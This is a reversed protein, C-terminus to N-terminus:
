EAVRHQAETNVSGCKFPPMTDELPVEHLSVGAAQRVPNVVETQLYSSLSQIADPFRNYCCVVKQHEAVTVRVRIHTGDVISPDRYVPALSQYQVMAVRQRLEAITEQPLDFDVVTFPPIYPVFEKVRTQVISRGKGSSDVVLSDYGDLPSGVFWELKFSQDLALIHAETLTSLGVSPTSTMTHANDTIRCDSQCGAAVIGLTLVVAPLQVVRLLNQM